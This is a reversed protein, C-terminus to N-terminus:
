DVRMVIERKTKLKNLKESTKGLDWTVLKRNKSKRKQIKEYDPDESESGDQQSNEQSVENFHNQSDFTGNNENDCVEENVTGQIGFIGVLDKSSYRSLDKGRTFKHYHVRARSKKSKNELSSVNSNDITEVPTGNNMSSLLTVFEKQQVLSDEQEKFGFGACSNLRYPVKIRESIGQNQAGLGQGEKWGMKELLKQGFKSKDTFWINGQPNPSFKKRKKKDALM